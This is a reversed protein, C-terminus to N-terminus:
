IIEIETFDKLPNFDKKNATIFKKCNSELASGLHKIDNLSSSDIKSEDKLKEGDCFKKHFRSEKDIKKCAKNFVEKGKELNSKTIFEVEKLNGSTLIAGVAGEHGKIDEFLIDKNIKCGKLDRLKREANKNIFGKIRKFKKAGGEGFVNKLREKNVFATLINTDCYNDM